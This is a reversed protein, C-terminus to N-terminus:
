TTTSKPTRTKTQKSEFHGYGQSSPWLLSATYRVHLLSLLTCVCDSPPRHMQITPPPLLHRHPRCSDPPLRSWARPLLYLPPSPTSRPAPLPSRMAPSQRHLSDHMMPGDPHPEDFMSADGMESPISRGLGRDETCVKVDWMGCRACGIACGWVITSRLM